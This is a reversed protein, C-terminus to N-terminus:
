PLQLGAIPQVISNWALSKSQRIEKTPHGGDIRRTCVPTHKYLNDIAGSHTQRYLEGMSGCGEFDVIKAVGFYGLGFPRAFQLQDPEISV